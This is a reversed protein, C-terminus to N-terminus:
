NKRAIGEFDRINNMEMVVLVWSLCVYKLYELYSFYTSLVCRIRICFMSILLYTFLYPLLYTLLSALTSKWNFSSCSLGLSLNFINRLSSRSVHMKTRLVRIKRLVIAPTDNVKSLYGLRKSHGMNDFYVFVAEVHKCM